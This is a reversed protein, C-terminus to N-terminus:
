LGDDLPTEAFQRWRSLPDKRKSPAASQLSRSSAHWALEVTQDWVMSRLSPRAMGFTSGCGGDSPKERLVRHIEKLHKEVLWRPRGSRDGEILGALGKQDFHRVWYEVSRPADGLLRAVEPCTRGQTVLLVGHLRHGYASEESRPIEQQPEARIYYRFDAATTEHNWSFM